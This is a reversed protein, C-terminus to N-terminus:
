QCRAHDRSRGEVLADDVATLLTHIRRGPRDSTAEDFRRRQRKVPLRNDTFYQESGALPFAGARVDFPGGTLELHGVLESLLPKLDGYGNSSKQGGPPNVPVGDIFYAVNGGNSRESFGRMTFGYGVGGQDFSNVAVGTLPKLLDAYDRTNRREQESYEIVTISAPNAEPYSSLDSKPASKHSGTVEFIKRKNM